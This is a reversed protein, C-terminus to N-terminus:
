QLYREVRHVIAAQAVHKLGKAEDLDARPASCGPSRAHERVILASRNQPKRPV